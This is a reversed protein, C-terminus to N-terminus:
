EEFQWEALPHLSWTFDGTPKGYVKERANKNAVKM